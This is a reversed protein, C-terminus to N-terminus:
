TKGEPAGPSIIGANFEAGGRRLVRYVNSFIM